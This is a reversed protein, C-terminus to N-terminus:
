ANNKELALRNVATYIATHVQDPIASEPINGQHKENLDRAYPRLTARIADLDADPKDQMAAKHELAMVLGTVQELSSASISSNADDRPPLAPGTDDSRVSVSEMDVASIFAEVDRIYVTDGTSQVIFVFKSSTVKPAEMVYGHFTKIADADEFGKARLRQAFQKRFARTWRAFIGTQKTFNFRGTFVSVLRQNEQFGILFSVRLNGMQPLTKTKSTRENKENTLLNPWINLESSKAASQLKRRFWRTVKGYWKEDSDGIFGLLKKIRPENNGDYVADNGLIGSFEITNNPNIVRDNKDIVEFRITYINRDMDSRPEPGRKYTGFVKLPKVGGEAAADIIMPPFDQHSVSGDPGYHTLSYGKLFPHAVNTGIEENLVEDPMEDEWAYPRIIAENPKTALLANPCAHKIWDTQRCEESCYQVDRCLPCLVKDELQKSCVHNACAM